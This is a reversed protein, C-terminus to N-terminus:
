LITNGTSRVRSGPEYRSKDQHLSSGTTGRVLFELADLAVSVTEASRPGYITRM